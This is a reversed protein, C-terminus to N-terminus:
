FRQIIFRALRLGVESLLTYRAVGSLLIKIIEQNILYLEKSIKYFFLGVAVAM